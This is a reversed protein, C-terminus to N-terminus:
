LRMDLDVNNADKRWLKARRVFESKHADGFGVATRGSSRKARDVFHVTNQAHAIRRGM